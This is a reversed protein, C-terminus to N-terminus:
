LLWGTVHTRVAYLFIRMVNGFTFRHNNPRMVVRTGDRMYVIQIWDSDLEDQCWYRGFWIDSKLSMFNLENSQIRMYLTEGIKFISIAAAIVAFFVLVFIEVISASPRKNQSRVWETELM